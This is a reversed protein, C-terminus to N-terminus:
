SQQPILRHHGKEVASAGRACLRQPAPACSPDECRPGVVEALGECSGARSRRSPGVLSIIMFWKKECFGVQEQGVETIVMLVM